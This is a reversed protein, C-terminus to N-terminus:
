KTVKRELLKTGCKRCYNDDDHVDFTKCRPCEDNHMNVRLRNDSVTPLPEGYAKIHLMNAIDYDRKSIPVCKLNEKIM